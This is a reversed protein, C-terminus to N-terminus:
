TSVSGAERPASSHIVRPPTELTVDSVFDSIEGDVNAETAAGANVGCGPNRFFSPLMDLIAQWYRSYVPYDIHPHSEVYREM